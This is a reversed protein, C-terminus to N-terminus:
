HGNIPSLSTCFFAGITGVYCILLQAAPEEAMKKGLDSELLEQHM